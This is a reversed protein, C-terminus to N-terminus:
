CLNEDADTLGLCQDAVTPQFTSKREACVFADALPPWSTEITSFTDYRDLFTGPLRASETYTPDHQKPQIKLRDDIASACVVISSVALIAPDSGILDSQECVFDRLVPPLIQVPFARPLFKSILDLPEADFSSQRSESPTTREKILEKVADLGKTKAMDNFDTDTGDVEPFIVKCRMVDGAATAKARGPNGDTNHDDDGAIIIESDPHADRASSTAELLNGANFAVYVTAETAEHITAATAYGEAVYVQTEDGPIHCACGKTRGGSLFKKSGDTDIFQLSVLEGKDEVPVVIKGRSVRVCHAGIGKATLYPHEAPAETAEGWIEKAKAAAAEHRLRTEEQRAMREAALQEEFRAAEAPSMADQRKSTWVVRDPNGKWSGFVGVGIFAGPQYDDQIETYFYWGSKNGRKEGPAQIRDIRGLVPIAPVQDFGYSRMEDVFAPRPNDDVVYAPKSRALVKKADVPTELETM